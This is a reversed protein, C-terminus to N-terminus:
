IENEKNANWGCQMHMGNYKLKEFLFNKMRLRKARIIMM